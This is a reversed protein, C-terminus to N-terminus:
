VRVITVKGKSTAKVEIKSGTDSYHRGAQQRPCNENQVSKNGNEKYYGFLRRLQGNPRETVVYLLHVAYYV